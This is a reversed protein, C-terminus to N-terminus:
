EMWSVCNETACHGHVHGNYSSQTLTLKGKCAPCEIVERRDQKPKPNMRWQSVVPDVFEMQRMAKEWADAIAEGSERTRRIWHPCIALADKAKHGGICPSMNPDGAKRAADMKASAGHGASCYDAKFNGPVPKYHQCYNMEFAITDERTKMFRENECNIEAGDGARSEQARVARLASAQEQVLVM